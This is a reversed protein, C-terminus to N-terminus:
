LEWERRMEDARQDAVLRLKRLQLAAIVDARHDPEVSVRAAALDWAERRSAGSMEIMAEVEALDLTAAISIASDFNSM